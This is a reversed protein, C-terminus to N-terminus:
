IVFDGFWLMLINNFYRLNHQYYRSVNAGSIRMPEQLVWAFFLYYSMEFKLSDTSDLPKLM